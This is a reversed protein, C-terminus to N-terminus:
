HPLHALTAPVLRTKKKEAKRIARQELGVMAFVLLWPLLQARQRYALGVNGFTISYLIGLGLIFFLLPQIDGFRNKIAYRLGPILGVFFLWWWVVMEPATLLMRLSGSALQWPFPSLLLYVAGVTLGGVFGTPTQLDFSSEVGSTTGTAIDKRFKQIRQLDIKESESEVKALAGSFGLLIVVVMGVAVWSTLTAKMKGFQPLALSLLVTIGIIYAAYFRFPIILLFSAACISVYRLSFGSTKIKICAYIAVTEILIVVPEKVTQASWIIMSPFLCAAWGVRVAVWDSFLTRAIKYAFVATMAGLFANLAVASYRGPFGIIYYLAGLLYYYGQHHGQYAGLLLGPLDLLGVGQKSWQGWLAIGNM